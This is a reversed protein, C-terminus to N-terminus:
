LRGVEAVGGGLFFFIQVAIAFNNWFNKKIIIFFLEILSELGLLVILGNTMYSLKQFWNSKRSSCFLSDEHQIKDVTLKM